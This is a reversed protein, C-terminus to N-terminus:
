GLMILGIVWSLAANDGPAQGAELQTSWGCSEVLSFVNVGYGSLSPRALDPHRCPGGESAQQCSLHEQCFLEKCSGGAFGRSASFGLSRAEEELCAVMEHLFRGVELREWSLLTSAPVVLRVALAQPLEKILTRFGSPGAVYPPCSYSLGFNECRPQVCKLALQDAVIIQGSPIVAADSAGLSLAQDILHNYESRSLAM